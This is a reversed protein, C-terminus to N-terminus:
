IHSFIPLFPLSRIIHVHICIQIGRHRFSTRYPAYGSIFINIERRTRPQLRIIGLRPRRFHSDRSM